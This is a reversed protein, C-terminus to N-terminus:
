LVSADLLEAGVAKSGMGLLHAVQLEGNILHKALKMSDFGLM